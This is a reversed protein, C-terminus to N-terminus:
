APAGKTWARRADPTLVAARRAAFAAFCAEELARVQPDARWTELLARVRPLHARMEPAAVDNRNATRHWHSGLRYKSDGRKGQGDGRANKMLFVDESRVAYHHLRATQAGAAVDHPRFRASKAQYLSANSLAAGDPTMVQPDPVTPELPNHDTARAFSAARFLCKFKAEGPVPAPEARTNRELVLDGPCWATVGGDGFLRWPIPVVDAGSTRAMLAPLGDELWLFEDSDIHLLHTIGAGRAWALVHDMGADQPPRDGPDHDIHHVLGRAALGALLADSGDTCHNTAVVMADFGLGAHYALWELLFPGEDKMCSVLAIRPADTM